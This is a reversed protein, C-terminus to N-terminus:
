QNEQPCVRGCVAPLSNTTRIIDYAQLFDGAAVAAIFDPIPVGVPCGSVCPKAKCHLCRTAEEQAQEPTYGMAVEEFCKAREKPDREPMPVKTPTMNFKGAM